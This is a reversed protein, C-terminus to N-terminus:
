LCMKNRFPQSNNKEVGYKMYLLIFHYSHVPLPISSAVIRSHHSAKRCPHDSETESWDIYSIQHAFHQQLVNKESYKPRVWGVEKTYLEVSLRRDIVSPIIM